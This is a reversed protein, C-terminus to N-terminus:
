LFQPAVCQSMETSSTQPTVPDFSGKTKCSRWYYRVIRKFSVHNQKQKLIYIKAIKITHLVQIM